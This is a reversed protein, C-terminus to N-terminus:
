SYPRNVMFKTRLCVFKRLWELTIYCVCVCVYACEVLSDSESLGTVSCVCVSGYSHVEVQWKSLTVTEYFLNNCGAEWLAWVLRCVTWSSVCVYLCMLASQNRRRNEFLHFVPPYSLRRTRCCCESDKRKDPCLARMDSLHGFSTRYKWQVFDILFAGQGFLPRPCMPLFVWLPGGKSYLCRSCSFAQEVLAWKHRFHLRPMHFLTRDRAARFWFELTNFTSTFHSERHTHDATRQYWFGNSCRQCGHEGKQTCGGAPFVPFCVEGVQFPEEGHADYNINM